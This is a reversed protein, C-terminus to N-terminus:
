TRTGAPSTRRAPLSCAHWSGCMRATAAIPRSAMARRGCDRAAAGVRGACSSGRRTRLVGCTPAPTRTTSSWTPWAARSWAPSASGNAPRGLLRRAARGGPVDRGARAAAADGRRGPRPRDRRRRRHRRLDAGRGRVGGAGGGPVTAAARAHARRVRPVEGRGPRRHRRLDRRQDDHAGARHGARAMEDILDLRCAPATSSRTSAPGCWSRWRRRPSRTRPSGRGRGRAGGAVAATLTAADWAPALDGVDRDIWDGVLKVWGNGAAAQATVTPPVEDAPVEVGIDRLYRRPPAVHRGARALRPM